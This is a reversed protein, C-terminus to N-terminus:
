CGAHHRDATARTKWCIFHFTKKKLSKNTNVCDQKMIGEHGSPVDAEILRWGCNKNIKKGENVDKKLLGLNSALLPNMAKKQPHVFVM